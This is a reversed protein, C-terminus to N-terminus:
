IELLTLFEISLQRAIPTAACARRALCGGHLAYAALDARALKTAGVGESIDIALDAPRSATERLCVSLCWVFSPQYMCHAPLRVERQTISSFCVGMRDQGPFMARDWLRKQCQLMSGPRPQSTQVSEDVVVRRLFPLTVSPQSSECVM